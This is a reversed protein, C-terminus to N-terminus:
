SSSWRGTSVGISFPRLSRGWLGLAKWLPLAFHLLRYVVVCFIITWIISFINEVEPRYGFLVHNSVLAVTLIIMLGCTVLGSALLVFFAAFPRLWPARRLVDPLSFSLKQSHYRAIMRHQIQVKSSQSLMAPRVSWLAEATILLKGLEPFDPYRRTCSVITAQKEAIAQLCEHLIESQRVLNDSPNNSSPDTLSTQMAVLIERRILRPTFNMRLCGGFQL